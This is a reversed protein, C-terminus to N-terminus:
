SRCHLLAEVDQEHLAPERLAARLGLRQDERAEHGAVRLGALLDLLRGLEDDLAPWPEDRAPALLERVGEIHEADVRRPQVAEVDPAEVPPNM